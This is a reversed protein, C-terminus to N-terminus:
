GEQMQVLICFILNIKHETKLYLKLTGHGSQGCDNKVM